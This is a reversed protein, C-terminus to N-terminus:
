PFKLDQNCFVTRSTYNAAHNKIIEAIDVAYDNFKNANVLTDTCSMYAFFYPNFNKSSSVTDRLFMPMLAGGMHKAFNLRGSYFRIPIKPM